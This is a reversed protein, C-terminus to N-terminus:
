TADLLKEGNRVKRRESIGADDNEDYRLSVAGRESINRNNYRRHSSRSIGRVKAIRARTCACQVHVYVPACERRITNCKEGLSILAYPYKARHITTGPNGFSITRMAGVFRPFLSRESQTYRVSTQELFKNARRM